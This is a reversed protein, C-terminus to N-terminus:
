LWYKLKSNNVAEVAVPVGLARSPVPNVAYAEAPVATCVTIIKFLTLPSNTPPESMILAM